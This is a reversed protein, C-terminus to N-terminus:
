EDIEGVWINVHAVDGEVRTVTFELGMKRLAKQLIAMKVKSVTM